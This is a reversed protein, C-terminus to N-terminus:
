LRRWEKNELYCLCIKDGSVKTVALKSKTLFKDFDGGFKATIENGILFPKDLHFCQIPVKMHKLSMYRLDTVRCDQTNGYDVFFVSVM